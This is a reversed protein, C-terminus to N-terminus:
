GLRRRTRRRRRRRSCARNEPGTGGADAGTGSTSMTRSVSYPLKSNDRMWDRLKASRRNAQAVDGGSAERPLM